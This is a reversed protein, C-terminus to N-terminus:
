AAASTSAESRLSPWGYEQRSKRYLPPTDTNGEGPLLSAPDTQRSVLDRAQEKDTLKERDELIQEERFTPSKLANAFQRGPTGPVKMASKLPSRPTMPMAVSERNGGIYGFGVDGPQSQAFETKESFPFGRGDIPSHVSTAEAFRPTRPPKELSSITSSSDTSASRVPALKLGAPRKKENNSAMAVIDRRNARTTYVQPFPPASSVLRRNM